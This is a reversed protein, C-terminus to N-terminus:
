LVAHVLNHPIFEGEILCNKLRAKISDANM